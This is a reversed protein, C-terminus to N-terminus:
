RVKRPRGCSKRELQLDGKTRSTRSNHARGRQIRQSSATRPMPALCMFITTRTAADGKNFMELAKTEDAKVAAVAKDLMARAEEATGSQTAHVITTAFLGLVAAAAVELMWKRLM